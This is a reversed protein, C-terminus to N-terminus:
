TLKSTTPMSQLPYNASMFDSKKYFHFKNNAGAQTQTIKCAIKQHLALFIFPM